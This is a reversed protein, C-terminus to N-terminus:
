QREAEAKLAALWAPLTEELKKKMTKPMLRPLWGDFTEFTKVVVGNATPVIEWAHFAKTGFAEGTWVLRFPEEVTVLTSTVAFGQSKWLFKSGARFPGELKASEVANNWQPWTEVATLVSWVRAAPANISIQASAEAATPPAAWAPLSVILVAAASCAITFKIM